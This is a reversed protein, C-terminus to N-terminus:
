IFPFVEDLRHSVSLLEKKLETLSIKLTTRM